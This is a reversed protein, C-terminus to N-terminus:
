RGHENKRGGWPYVQILVRFYEEANMKAVEMQICRFSFMLV